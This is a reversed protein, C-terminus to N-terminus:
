KTNWEQLQKNYTITEKKAQESLKIIDMITDFDINKNEERDKPTSDYIDHAELYACYIKQKYQDLKEKEFEKYQEKHFEFFEKFILYEQPKCVIFKKRKRDKFHYVSNFINSKSGFVKALCQCFMKEETKNKLVFFYHTDRNDYLDSEEINYKKSLERFLKKAAEAEGATGRDALEKIKKLREIIDM